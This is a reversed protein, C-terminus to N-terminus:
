SIDFCLRMYTWSINVTSHSSIEKCEGRRRKKNLIVGFVLYLVTVATVPLIFHIKCSHEARTFCVGTEFYKFALLVQAAAFGIAIFLAAISFATFNIKKNEDSM